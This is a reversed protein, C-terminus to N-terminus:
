KWFAFAAVTKGKHIKKKLNTVVGAKMLEAMGETLM